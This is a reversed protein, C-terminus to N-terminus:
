QHIELCGATFAFPFPGPDTTRYAGSFFVFMNRPDQEDMALSPRSRDEKGIRIVDRRM